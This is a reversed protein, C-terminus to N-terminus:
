PLFWTFPTTLAPHITAAALRFFTSRILILRVCALPRGTVEPGHHCETAFQCVEEPAFTRCQQKSVRALGVSHHRNTTRPGPTVAGVRLLWKWRRPQRVVM